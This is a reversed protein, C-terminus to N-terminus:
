LFVNIVSDLNQIYLIFYYLIKVSFYRPFLSAKTVIHWLSVIKLFQPDIVM